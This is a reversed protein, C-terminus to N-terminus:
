ILPKNTCTHASVKTAYKHLNIGRLNQSLYQKVTVVSKISASNKYIFEPYAISNFAFYM